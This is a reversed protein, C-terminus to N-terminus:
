NHNKKASVFEEGKRRSCIGSSSLFKQVRMKQSEKYFIIISKKKLKGIIVFFLVVFFVWLAIETSSGTTTLPKIEAKIALTIGTSENGKADIATLKYLYNKNAKVSVELSNINKGISYGSDWSESEKKTYM